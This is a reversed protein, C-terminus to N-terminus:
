LSQASSDMREKPRSMIGTTDWKRDPIFMVPFMHNLSFEGWDSGPKFSAGQSSM